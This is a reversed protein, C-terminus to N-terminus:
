MEPAIKRRLEGEKMGKRAGKKGIKWLPMSVREGLSDEKLGRIRENEVKEGSIKKRM